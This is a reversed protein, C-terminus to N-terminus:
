GQNSCCSDQDCQCYKRNYLHLLILAIVPLYLLYNNIHILNINDNFVVFFLATLSIWLAPKVWQKSTNKASHYVAFFSVVLFFVDILRWWAPAGTCCTVTCSKAIFLLPTALCHVLCLASAVVGINDSKQKALIM